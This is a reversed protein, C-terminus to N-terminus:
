IICFTVIGSETSTRHILTAADVIMVSTGDKTVSSIKVLSGLCKKSEKLHKTLNYTIDM